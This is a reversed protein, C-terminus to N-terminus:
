RGPDVSLRRLRPLRTLGHGAQAESGYSWDICAM